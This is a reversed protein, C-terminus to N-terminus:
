RVELTEQEVSVIDGIHLKRRRRTEVDGNVMVNGGQILLKAQGGTGCVGFRKLFQDLRIANDAQDNMTGDRNTTLDDTNISFRTQPLKTQPLKVTPPQISFM